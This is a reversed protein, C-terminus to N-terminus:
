NGKRSRTYFRYYGDSCALLLENDNHSIVTFVYSEGAWHSLIIDHNSITYEFISAVNNTQRRMWYVEKPDTDKFNLYEGWTVQYSLNSANTGYKQLYWKGSCVWKMNMEQTNGGPQNGGQPEVRVTDAGEPNVIKGEESALFPQYLEDEVKECSCLVGIILFLGIFIKNM